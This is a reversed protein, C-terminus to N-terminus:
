PKCVKCPRHGAAIAAGRKEFSVINAAKIRQGLKCKVTHFPDRQASAVYGAHDLKVPRDPSQKSFNSVVILVVIVAVLAAIIWNRRVIASRDDQGM